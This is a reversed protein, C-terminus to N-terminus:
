RSARPRNWLCYGWACQGAILLGSLVTVTPGEVRGWAYVWEVIASAILAGYLALNLGLNFWRMLRSHGSDFPLPGRLPGPSVRQMFPFISESRTGLLRVALREEALAAWILGVLYILAFELYM